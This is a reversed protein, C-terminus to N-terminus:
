ILPLIYASSNTFLLSFYARILMIYFFVAFNPFEYNFEGHMVLIILDFLILCTPCMVPMSSFNHM